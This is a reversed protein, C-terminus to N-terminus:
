SKGKLADELQQVWDVLKDCMLDSSVREAEERMACIVSSIAKLDIGAFHMSSLNETIKLLQRREFALQYDMEFGGSPANLEDRTAARAFRGALDLVKGSADIPSGAEKMQEALDLLERMFEMADAMRM